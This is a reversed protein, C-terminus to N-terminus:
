GALYGMQELSQEQQLQEGEKGVRWGSEELLAYLRRFAELYVAELKTAEPPLVHETLKYLVYIFTAGKKNGSDSFYQGYHSLEDRYNVLPGDDGALMLRVGKNCVENVSRMLEADEEDPVGQALAAWEGASSEELLKQAACVGQRQPRVRM